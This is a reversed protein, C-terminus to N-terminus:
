REGGSVPVKLEGDDVWCTYGPSCSMHQAVHCVGGQRGLPSYAVIGIGLERCLPVVEEQTALPAPLPAHQTCALHMEHPIHLTSDIHMCAARSPQLSPGLDIQLPGTKTDNRKENVEADRSWLSWEMQYATVPHIAHAKRM